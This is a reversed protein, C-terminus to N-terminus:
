ASFVENSDLPISRGGVILNSVELFAGSVVLGDDLGGVHVGGGELDSVWAAVGTEEEFNLALICASETDFRVLESNGSLIAALVGSVEVLGSNHHVV